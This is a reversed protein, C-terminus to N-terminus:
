STGVDKRASEIDRWFFKQFRNIKPLNHAKL